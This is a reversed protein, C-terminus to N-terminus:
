SLVEDYRAPSSVAQWRGVMRSIADRLHPSRYDNPHIALRAVRQRPLVRGVTEATAVSAWLRLPSRSAFSMAPTLLPQSHSPWVRLQDECFALGADKVARRAAANQLWAPAVFGTPRVDLAEQLVALGNGIRRAAEEYSLDHFEGEGATLAAAALKKGASQPATDALHYYGHLLIEDQPTLAAQLRACFAPFGRLDAHGHFDPVVLMALKHVGLGRLHAIAEFVLAEKAPTVDHLSYLARHPASTMAM